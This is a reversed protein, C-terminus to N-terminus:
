SRGVAKKANIVDINLALVRGLTAQRDERSPPARQWAAVSLAIERAQRHLEVATPGRPLELIREMIDQLSQEVISIRTSRAV